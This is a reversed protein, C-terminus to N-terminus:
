TSPFVFDPYDRDRPSMIRRNAAPWAIGFAPDDWRVGRGADPAYFESMQYVIETDDTLTQYGHALGPPVYLARYNEASLEVGIWQLHSPSDPRLDVLVDYITGRTCRVLKAETHPAAQFHMGRLTGARHNTAISSQVTVAALGAEAFEHACWTRAFGGREDSMMEVDVIFAGDLTTETFIVPSLRAAVL